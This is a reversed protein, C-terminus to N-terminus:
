PLYYLNCLSIDLDILSTLRCLTNPLQKLPNQSLNLYQLNKSRQISDPIEMLENNRINFNQLNELNSFMQAPLQKLFNDSLDLHVVQDFKFQMFQSPISVMERQCLDIKGMNSIQSVLEKMEERRKQSSIMQTTFPKKVMRDTRLISHEHHDEEDSFDSQDCLIPTPAYSRM